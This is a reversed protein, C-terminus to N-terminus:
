SEINVRVLSTQPSTLVVPVDLSKAHIGVWVVPTEQGLRRKERRAGRGELWTNFRRGLVPSFGADHCWAEYSGRLSRVTVVQEGGFALGCEAAWLGIPDQAERYATTWADVAAPIALGNRGGGACQWALCGRVAWALIASRCSPDSVMAAKISPDRQSAPVAPFTLKVIRRWLGSDDSDAKPDYNSVLWLKWTAAFEIPSQYLARVSMRENGTVQKIIGADLKASADGEAAFAFRSGRLRVLHPSAQGGTGHRSLMFTSIPLKIAYDGMMRAVSDTITTKGGGGDGQLLHLVEASSDGSLAMGMCRSLFGSLGPMSAEITALFADFKPHCADPLYDVPALKTILDARNHPQLQGTRLNITGNNVNFLWPDSDLADVAVRVRDDSEALKLSGRIHGSSEQALARNILDRDGTKLADLTRRRAAKRALAVAAHTDEAWRKGDDVLWGIGDCYRLCDGYQEVLRLAQDNDSLLAGSSTYPDLDGGIQPEDM